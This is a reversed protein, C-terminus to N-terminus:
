FDPQSNELSRRTFKLEQQMGYKLYFVELNQFRQRADYGLYWTLKYLCAPCLWLVSHRRKMTKPYKYNIDRAVVFQFSHLLLLGKEFHPIAEPDGRVNM